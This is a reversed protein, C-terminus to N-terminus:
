AHWHTHPDLKTNAMQQGVIKVTTLLMFVFAIRVEEIVFHNEYM